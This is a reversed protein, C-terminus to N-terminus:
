SAVGMSALEAALEAAREAQAIWTQGGMQLCYRQGDGKSWLTVPGVVLTTTEWKARHVKSRLGMAALQEAIENITLM